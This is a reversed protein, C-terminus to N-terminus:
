RALRAVIAALEGPDVPKAAHLQFGAALARVRDVPRACATLAVAPVQGGRKGELARVRTMLAYGDEGPMAIDSVLVDPVARALEAMAEAVSAADRVRAGARELCERVFGRADPEDDVVLVNVGRLAGRAIPPAVLPLRVEFPGTTSGGHLEVLKRIVAIGLRQTRREERVRDGALVVLIRAHAGARDVRLTVRGGDPVLQLANELLRAVLQGLREADGRVPPLGADLALELAVKRAEARPRVFALATEVPGALGLPRLEPRVKGALLRSADQLEDLLRAQLLANREITELARAKGEADLVGSRLLRAWGLIVNLPTRLEHSAFALLDPDGSM